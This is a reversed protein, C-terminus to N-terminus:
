SPRSTGPGAREWIPYRPLTVILLGSIIAGVVGAALFASYDGTFDRAWGALVPGIGSGLAIMSAMVGFIKGFNRMGAFRTTLYGCIQLKTGSAYGNVIMAVVILPPSHFPGMLLLFALASSALTLGGVWNPAYRDLLVGTVLKGIIGAIGFLSALLAANTRTVGAEVLIPFQHVMLGITLTMMLLTSIGIRWLAGDRWAEAIALGPLKNIVHETGDPNTSSHRLHFDRLFPICVLLALGGWGLGLWMFAARWGFEAILWNTLPPTISQAVATGSLTVGLALGRASSFAGAVTASWVTSKVSMSVLGYLCWVFLWQTFGTVAGFSAVVAGTVVLGPLALRRTGWRDIFIGFFPSLVASIIGAISIGLSFQTRSWAFENGVPDMFVGAAASMVSHFSFGISAALVLTWGRRWEHSATMDREMM